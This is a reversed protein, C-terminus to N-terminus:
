GTAQLGCAEGRPRHRVCQPVQEAQAGVRQAGPQGHVRCGGVPRAPYGVGGAYQPHPRLAPRQGNIAVDRRKAAAIRRAERIAGDTGELVSTEVIEAGYARLLLKRERSASSPVCLKVRYGLAAGLMALAIGTNGSTAELITKGPRLAGTEEGRRLMRIAARDKVSGGPNFWEAKALVVVKSNPPRVRDIRLLPTNGILDSISRGRDCVGPPPSVIHSTSM